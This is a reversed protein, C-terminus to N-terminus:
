KLIEPNAFERMKLVEFGERIFGKRGATKLAGKPTFALKEIAHSGNPVAQHHPTIDERTVSVEFRRRVLARSPNELPTANARYISTQDGRRSTVVWGSASTKIRGAELRDYMTLPNYEEM